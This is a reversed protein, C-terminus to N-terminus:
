RGRLRRLAEERKALMCEETQHFGLYWAPHALDYVGAHTREGEEKGKEIGNRRGRRWGRGGSSINKGTCDHDITINM